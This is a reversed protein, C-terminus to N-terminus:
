SGGLFKDTIRLPLRTALAAFSRGFCHVSGENVRAMAGDDSLIVTHKKITKILVDLWLVTVM